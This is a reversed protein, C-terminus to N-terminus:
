KICELYIKNYMSENELKLHNWNYLNNINPKIIGTWDYYTDQINVIFHINEKDYYITGSFRDALILAFYYCNGTLWNEKKPFRKRIFQLINEQIDTMNYDKIVCLLYIKVTYM